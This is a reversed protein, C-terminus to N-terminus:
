IANKLIYKFVKILSFQCHITEWECVHLVSACKQNLIEMFYKLSRSGVYGWARLQFQEFVELYKWTLTSHKSEYLEM